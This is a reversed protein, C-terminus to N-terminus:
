QTPLGSANLQNEIEAQDPPTAQEATQQSMNTQQGMAGAQQMGQSAMATAQLAAMQQMAQIFNENKVDFASAFERIVTPHLSFEPYQHMVAAFKLLGNARQENAIPSLSDVDVVAEYEHNALQDMQLMQWAATAQTADMGVQDPINTVEKVWVPMTIKEISQLLFELGIRCLWDAVVERAAMERVSGAKASISAATATVRDAEGRTEASSGSAVNFDDKTIQISQVVSPDQPALPVPLLANETNTFVVTGDPGSVLKQVEEMEISSKKAQWQRKSRRRHSRLQNRSENIEDQSNKLNWFFPIPYFGKRRRYFRLDIIPYRKFKEVEGIFCNNTEDYMFFEKARGDWIKWVKVLDGEQNDISASSTPTANANSYTRQIYPDSASSNVADIGEDKARKSNLERIDIARYYEFYGCWPVKSLQWENNGGVRFRDTQIRKVYIWDEEPIMEPEEIKLESVNPDEDKNTSPTGFNPNMMWSASYGVEVLGYYAGVDLLAQGCHDPFELQRSAVKTNLYDTALKAKAYAGEIDFDSRSPLPEFKFKPRKFILAPQKVQWDSFILNLVYEDNVTFNLGNEQYWQYGEYYNELVPCRFRRSWKDYEENAAYIKAKWATALEQDKYVSAM